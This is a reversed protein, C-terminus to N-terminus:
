NCKTISQAFHKKNPIVSSEQLNYGICELATHSFVQCQFKQTM